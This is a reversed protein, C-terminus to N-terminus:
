HEMYEQYVSIHHVKYTAPYMIVWMLPMLVAMVGGVEGMIELMKYRIREHYSQDETLLMNWFQLMDTHKNLPDSKSPKLTTRVSQVYELFDLELPTDNLGVIDDDVEIRSQKFFIQKGWTLDTQERTAYHVDKFTTTLSGNEEYNRLNPQVTKMNLIIINNRYFLDTEERSACKSTMNKNPDCEHLALRM